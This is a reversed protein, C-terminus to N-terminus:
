VPRAWQKLAVVAIQLIISELVRLLLKLLLVHVNLVLIVVRLTHKSKAPICLLRDGIPAACAAQLQLRFRLWAGRGGM